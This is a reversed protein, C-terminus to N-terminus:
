ISDYRRYYRAEKPIGEVSLERYKFSIISGRPFNPNSVGEDVPKGPNACGMAFASDYGTGGPGIMRMVREEDTFGSLEFTKGQFRVVLAGMKGLLKSGRDTERGWCYGIVEAEADLVGKVKLLQRSRQPAWFSLPHRLIVGEAGARLLDDLIGSIENLADASGPSLRNQRHLQCHSHWWSRDALWLYVSSFDWAPPQEAPRKGLRTLVNRFEKKFNTNVIEGNAFIAHFPPSDFAMYRVEQWESGPTLKKVTSMLTQFRERGMYLEGDLACSPMLDLWWDPAQIVKGYRSWLGTARPPTM